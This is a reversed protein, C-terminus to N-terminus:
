IFHCYVKMGKEIIKSKIDTLSSEADALSHHLSSHELHLSYPEGMDIWGEYYCYTDVRFVSQGDYQPPNLALDKFEEFTM